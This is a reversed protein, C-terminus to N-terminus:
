KQMSQRQQTRMDTIIVPQNRAHSMDKSRALCEIQLYRCDHLSPPQIDGDACATCAPHTTAPLGAQRTLDAMSLRVASGTVSNGTSNGLLNCLNRARVPHVHKQKLGQSLEAAGPVICDQLNM